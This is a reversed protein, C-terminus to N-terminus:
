NMDLVGIQFSKLKNKAYSDHGIKNFLETADKGVGKMIVMGGPHNPIWETVDYVKNNIVLWADDKTNHKKVDSMKYKKISSDSKKLSSKKSKQQGSMMKKSSKVKKKLLSVGHIIEKVAKESTSLSGEIWAQHNSFAEGVIWLNPISHRIEDELQDHELYSKRSKWYHCGINWYPSADIWELKPIEVNSMIEKVSSHLESILKEKSELYYDYWKQTRKTGDTYSIMILGKDNYPIIYSLAADTVIHSSIWPREYKAYIRYLPQHVSLKILRNIKHNKIFPIQSLNFPPIALVLKNTEYKKHKKNEVEIEYHDNNNQDKTPLINLLRSELHIEVGNKKLYEVIKDILQDLGGALIYYQSKSTFDRMLSIMADRANMIYIESYYPYFQILEKLLHPTIKNAVSYFTKSLLEKESIKKEKIIHDIQYLIQDVQNTIKIPNTNDGFRKMFVKENKLPYLKDDLKFEHILNMVHHHDSSFRAGGSEYIQDKNHITHIRGGLRSNSELLLIKREKKVSKLDDKLDDKLNEIYKYITYLGSIGGGVVILDYM